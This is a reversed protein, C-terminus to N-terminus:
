LKKALVGRFFQNKSNQYGIRDYPYQVNYNTKAKKYEKQLSPNELFITNVKFFLKANEDDYEFVHLVIHPFAEKKAYMLRGQVEGSGRFCYGEQELLENIKVQSVSEKAIVLYDIENQGVMDEMTCFGVPYIHEFSDGFVSQIKSM